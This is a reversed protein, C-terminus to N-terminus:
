RDCKFTTWKHFKECNIMEGGVVDGGRYRHGKTGVCERYEL